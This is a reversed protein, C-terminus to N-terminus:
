ASRGRFSDSRCREGRIPLLAAVDSEAGCTAGDAIVDRERHVRSAREPTLRGDSRRTAPANQRGQVAARVRADDIKAYVLTSAVCRHRLARQVVLRDGTRAYLATAYSHRLVHPSGRLGAKAMWGAVRCHVQRTTLRGGGRAPFLPGTARGALWGRQDEAVARPMFITTPADRKATRLWVEGREISVDEVDLAILSGVRVGTGLMFRVLM